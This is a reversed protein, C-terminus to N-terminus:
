RRIKAKRLPTLKRVKDLELMHYAIEEEHTEFPYGEINVGSEFRAVVKKWGEVFATWRCGKPYPMPYGSSLHVWRSQPSFEQNIKEELKRIKTSIAAIDKNIDEQPVGEPLDTFLTNIDAKSLELYPHLKLGAVNDSSMVGIERKQAAMLHNKIQQMRAIRIQKLGEEFQQRLESRSILSKQIEPIKAKLEGIEKRIAKDRIYSEVWLYKDVDIEFLRKIQPGDSSVLVRNILNSFDQGM